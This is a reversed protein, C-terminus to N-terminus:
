FEIRQMGAASNGGADARAARLRGSRRKIARGSRQMTLQLDGSAAAFRSNGTSDVTIVQGEADRVVLVEGARPQWNLEAQRGQRALEVVAPQAEATLRAAAVVRGQRRIEYHDIATAPAPVSFAFGQRSDLDPIAFVAFSQRIVESGHSDWAIFEHSAEASHAARVHETPVMRLGSVTQEQLRGSITLGGSGGGVSPGFGIPSQDRHTLALNFHYDSVWLDNCYTMFDRRTGTPDVLSDTHIDFGWTGIAGNALPYDPDPNPSNCGPAHSLDLNHGLEHAVIFFQGGLDISVSVPFGVYGIGATGSTSGGPPIIVGHYLRNSNDLDRLDAMEILLQDLDYAGNFVYPARVEADYAGIPLVQLSERMYDDVNISPTQGQFTVPVFTVNLPGPDVVQLSLNGTEPYRVLAAGSGVEVRLAANAVMAGAPLVVFHSASLLSDAGPTADIAAPAQMPYIQDAAGSVSVVVNAPPVPNSGTVFARVLVERQALMPVSVAQSVSSDFGRAAQNLTVKHIAFHSSLPVCTASVPINVQAEDADNSNLVLTGALDQAGCTVTLTVTAGAGAAVAGSAPAVTLWSLAESFDYSLEADGTNNFSLQLTDSEGQNIEFSAAAPALNALEPAGVSPAPPPNTVNDSSSSGGGGGCAALLAVCLLAGVRIGAM